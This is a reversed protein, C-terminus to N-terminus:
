HGNETKGNGLTCPGRIGITGAFNPDIDPFIDTVFMAGHKDIRVIKEDFFSGDTSAAQIKFRNVDNMTGVFAIGVDVHENLAVAIISPGVMRASDIGAEALLREGSYFQFLANIRVEEKPDAEFNIEAYGSVFPDSLGLSKVILSSAPGPDFGFPVFNTRVDGLDSVNMDLILPNGLSDFFEISGETPGTFSINIQTRWGVGDGIQPIFVKHPAASTLRTATLFLILIIRPKTLEIM